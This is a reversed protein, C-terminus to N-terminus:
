LRCSVPHDIYNVYEAELKCHPLPVWGPFFALGPSHFRNWCEGSCRTDSFMRTLFWRWFSCIFLLIVESRRCQTHSEQEAASVKLHHLPRSDPPLESEGQFNDPWSKQFALYLHLVICLSTASSGPQLVTSQTSWNAGGGRRRSNRWSQSRMTLRRVCSRSIRLLVLPGLLDEKFYLCLIFNPEFEHKVRTPNTLEQLGRCILTPWRQFHPSFHFFSSSRKIRRM